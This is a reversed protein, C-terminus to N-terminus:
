VLPFAGNSLRAAGDGIAREAFAAATAPRDSDGRKEPSPFSAASGASSSAAGGGTGSAAGGSM